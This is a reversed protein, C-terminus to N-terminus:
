ATWSVSFLNSYADYDSGLNEIILDWVADLEDRDANMWADIARDWVSRQNM